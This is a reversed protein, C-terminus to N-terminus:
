CCVGERGPGSLLRNGLQWRLFREGERSEEERKRFIFFHRFLRDEGVAEELTEKKENRLRKEM